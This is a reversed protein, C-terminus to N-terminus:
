TTSPESRPATLDLFMEVLTITPDRPMPFSHQGDVFGYREYFRRARPVGDAVDLGLRAAGQQTAWGVVTDLLSTAVGGGRWRQDVWMSYVWPVGYDRHTGGAVIGIDAGDVVAIWWPGLELLRRWDSEDFESERASSSGFADPEDALAYLRIGRFRQWSDSDLREVKWVARTKWPARETAALLRPETDPGPPDDLSPDAVVGVMPAEVPRATATRPPVPNIPDDIV